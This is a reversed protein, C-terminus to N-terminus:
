IIKVEPVSVIFNGGRKKYLDQKKIIEEAFNWALILVFDPQDELLKSEPYIPIHMGPTYKGHKYPISDVVYDLTEVGIRCYNLMINGKASAGYGVIRKNELKLKWLLQVLEHRIGDVKRRFKLYTEELLLGKKNELDILQNVIKSVKRNNKSIYLRISGGHVPDRKADILRLNHRDLLKKFPTISIYSLHEQYITDFEVKELLDVL